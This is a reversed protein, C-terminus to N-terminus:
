VFVSTSESIPMSLYLSVGRAAGAGSTLFYFIARMYDEGERSKTLRSIKESQMTVIQLRSISIESCGSRTHPVSIIASLSCLILFACFPSLPEVPSSRLGTLHSVQVPEQINRIEAENPEEARLTPMGPFFANM